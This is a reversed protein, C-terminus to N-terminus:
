QCVIAVSGHDHEETLPDGPEGGVWDVSFSAVVEGSTLCAFRVKQTTEGGGTDAPRFSYAPPSGGAFDTHTDDAGFTIDDAGPSSVVVMPELAVTVTTTWIPAESSFDTTVEITFSDMVGTTVTEPSLSLHYYDGADCGALLATVALGVVLGSRMGWQLGRIARGPPPQSGPDSPLQM